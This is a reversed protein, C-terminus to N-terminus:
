PITKGSINSYVKSYYANGPVVRTFGGNYVNPGENNVKTFRTSPISDAMNGPAGYPTTQGAVQNGKNIVYIGKTTTKMAGKTSSCDVVNVVISFIDGFWTGDSKQMRYQFTYTGPTSPATITFQFTYQQGPIVMVGDAIPTSAPGSSQSVGNYAGLGVRGPFWTSNGGGRMTVSVPVPSGACVQDPFGEAVVGASYVFPDPPVLVVPVSNDPEPAPPKPAPPPPPPVEGSISLPHEDTNDPTIIYPLDTFGDGDMDPNTQSWDGRGWYNGGLSPGAVINPGAVPTINWSTRTAGNIQVNTNSDFINNFVTTNDTGQLSLAPTGDSFTNGTITTNNTQSCELGAHLGTVDIINQEFITGNSSQIMVGPGVMIFNNGSIINDDSRNVLMAQDAFYSLNNNRITSGYGNLLVIGRETYTPFGSTIGHIRNGTINSKGSTELTIGDWNYILDNGTITNEWSNGTANIGGGENDSIYNDSINAYFQNFLFIGDGHNDIIRNNMVTLRDSAYSAIGNDTNQSIFSGTVTCDYSGGSPDFSRGIGIGSAGNNRFTSNEIRTLNSDINEIGDGSNHTFNSELIHHWGDAWEIRLGAEYPSDGNDEVTVNKLLIQSSAYSYMGNDANDFVSTDNIRANSVNLLYIGLNNNSITVYGSPNPGILVNESSSLSIGYVSNGHLYVDGLIQVDQSRSVQLGVPSYLFEIGDSITVDTSNTINIGAVQNDHGYIPGSIDVDSSNRILIGNVTNHSSEIPGAIEVISSDTVNIGSGQNNFLALNDGLTINEGSQVVIGDFWGSIGSFNKVQINSVDGNILIGISGDHSVSEQGNLINGLGDLVVNSVDHIWIGIHAWTDVLDREVPYYGPGTTGNIEWYQSGSPGQLNTSNLPPDTLNAAWPPNVTCVPVSDPLSSNDSASGNLVVAPLVPGASSFEENVQITNNSEDPGPIGPSNETNNLPIDPPSQLLAEPAASPTSNTISENVPPIDVTVADNQVPVEPNGAPVVQEDPPDDQVSLADPASTITSYLDPDEGPPLNVQLEPITAPPIVQNDQGPLQPTSSTVPSLGDSENVLLSSEDGSVPITLFFLILIIIVIGSGNHGSGRTYDKIRM